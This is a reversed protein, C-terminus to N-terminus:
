KVSYGSTDATIPLLSDREFFSSSPLAACKATGAKKMAHMIIMENSAKM